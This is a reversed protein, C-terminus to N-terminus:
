ELTWKGFYGTLQTAVGMERKVEYGKFDDALEGKEHGEETIETEGKDVFKVFKDETVPFILLMKNDILKKTVDNEVFRQPIEMLTVGEYSGLRGTTAIENKQADSRWDVVALNNIKKLATKTGMIIVSAKNATEVDEILEDFKEKTSATLAGTKVFQSNNPLKKAANYVEEYCMTKIMYIFAEAIKDTLETYDVRGLMIRDIDEGIKVGFVNTHLKYSEGENLHQMTLDHQGRSVKAVTLMIDNKTWFEEDDGLALNKKEVFEDFWEDEDFGTEVKFDIDEEIVEFIEDRHAKLKRKRLKASKVTNEDLEAIEMLVKRVAKSAERKTLKHANGDEDYEYIENGHNLDYCLKRFNEYKDEEAFVDRLHQTSFNMKYM